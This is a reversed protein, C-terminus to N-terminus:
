LLPTDVHQKGYKSKDGKGGCRVRGGYDRVVTSADCNTHGFWWTIQPTGERIAKKRSQAIAKKSQAPSV